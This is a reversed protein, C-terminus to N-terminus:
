KFNLYGVVVFWLGLSPRGSGALGLGFWRCISKTGLHQVQAAREAERKKEELAKRFNMVQPTPM